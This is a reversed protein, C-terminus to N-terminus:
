PPPLQVLGFSGTLADFLGIQRRHSDLWLLAGRCDAVPKVVGGPPCRKMIQRTDDFYACPGDEQFLTRSGALPAYADNAPDIRDEITWATTDVVRGAAAIRGGGPAWTLDGGIALVAGPDFAGGGAALLDGPVLVIARSTSGEPDTIQLDLTGVSPEESKWSLFGVRRGNPSPEIATIIWGTLTLVPTTQDTGDSYRFLTSSTRSVGTGKSAPTVSAYLLEDRGPLWVPSVNVGTTLTIKRLNRGDPDSVYVDNYEIPEGVPTKSGLFAIRRGDASWSAAFQHALPALTEVGTGDSKATVLRYFGSSGTTFILRGGDSSRRFWRPSIPMASTGPRAISIFSEQGVCPSGSSSAATSPAPPKSVAAPAAPLTSLSATLEKVYASLTGAPLQSALEQLAPLASRGIGFLANVAGMRLGERATGDRAIAAYEPVAADGKRALLLLRADDAVPDLVQHLEPTLPREALRQLAQAAEDGSSMIAGLGRIAEEARPSPTAPDAAMAELDRWAVRGKKALTVAPSKLIQLDILAVLRNALGSQDRSVVDKLTTLAPAAPLGVRGLVEIIREQQSTSATSFYGALPSVCAEDFVAWTDILADRSEEHQWEGWLAKMAEPDKVRAIVRLVAPVVRTDRKEGALWSSLSATARPGLRVLEAEARAAVGPDSSVLQSLLAVAEESSTQPAAPAAGAASLMCLLVIWHPGVDSIRAAACRRTLGDGQLGSKNIPRHHRVLM